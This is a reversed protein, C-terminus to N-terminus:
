RLSSVPIVQTTVVSPTSYTLGVVMLGTEVIGISRAINLDYRNRMEYINYIWEGEIIPIVGATLGSSATAVTINFRNWYPSTSTDDAYFIIEDNSGKRVIEWTFYPNIKNQAMDSLTVVVQTTGKNQIILM